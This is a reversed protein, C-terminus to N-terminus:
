KDKYSFPEKQPALVLPKSASSPRFQIRRRLVIAKQIVLREV